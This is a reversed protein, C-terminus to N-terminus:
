KDENNKLKDIAAQLEILKKHEQLADLKQSMQKNKGFSLILLISLIMIVFFALMILLKHDLDKQLNEIKNELKDYHYNPYHGGPNNYQGGNPYPFSPQQSIPPTTNSAPNPQNDSVNSTQNTTSKKEQQLNAIEDKDKQQSVKLEKIEKNLKEIEKKKQEDFHLQKKNIRDELKKIKLEREQIAKKIKENDEELKKNDMKFTNEQAKDINRDM